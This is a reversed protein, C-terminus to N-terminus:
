SSRAPTIKDGATLRFGGLAVVEEGAHLGTGTVITEAGRNGEITVYVPSVVDGAGVVFVYPGLTSDSLASSPVAFAAIPAGTALKVVGDMGSLLGAGQVSGEVERAASQADLAPSLATLVGAAPAFGPVTLEFDQGVALGAADGEPVSFVARLAGQGALAVVTQGAQLYDGPDVRRIGVVGAFPAVITLQALMANDVDLQAQAEDVAAQAAELAAESSGAIAMLKQTRALERRAQSLRAADLAGQARVPADVLQVLVQGAAVSQGSRFMVARVIGSSGAALAASQQAMVQAPVEIETRWVQARVAIVPVTEAVASGGALLAVACTLVRLSVRMM